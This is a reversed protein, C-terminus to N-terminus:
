ATARPEAKSHAAMTSAKAARRKTGASWALLACPDAGGSHGAVAVAMTVVVVVGPQGAPHAAEGQFVAKGEAGRPKAASTAPNPLAAFPNVETTFDTVAPRAKRQGAMRSVGTKRAQSRRKRSSLLAAAADEAMTLLLFVVM